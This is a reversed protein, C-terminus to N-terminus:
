RLHLAQTGFGFQPRIESLREFVRIPFKRNAPYIDIVNGSAIESQVIEVLQVVAERTSSGSSLPSVSFIGTWPCFAPAATNMNSNLVGLIKGIKGIFMADGTASGHAHYPSKV